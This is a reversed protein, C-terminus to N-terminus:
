SHLFHFFYIHNILVQDKSDVAFSDKKSQASICHKREDTLSTNRQQKTITPRRCAPRRRIPEMEQARVENTFKYNKMQRKYHVTQPKTTNKTLKLNMKGGIKRARREEM